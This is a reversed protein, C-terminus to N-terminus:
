NVVVMYYPLVILIYDWLAIVLEETNIETGFITVNPENKIISDGGFAVNTGIIIIMAVIGVLGLILPVVLGKLAGKSARVAINQINVKHPFISAWFQGLSSGEDTEDPIGHGLSYPLILILTLLSHMVNHGILYISVCVLLPVGFRRLSKPYDPSGALASLLGAVLGCLAILTINLIVM